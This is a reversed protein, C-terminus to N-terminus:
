SDKVLFGIKITVQYHKISDKEINGRIQLVEFWSIERVTQSVRDIANKIANEISDKSTGIIEVAKYTPESM